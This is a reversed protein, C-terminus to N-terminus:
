EFAGKKKGGRDYWDLKWFSWGPISTLGPISSPFKMQMEM